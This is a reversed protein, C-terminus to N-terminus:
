SLARRILIVALAAGGIAAIVGLGEMGSGRGGAAVVPQVQLSAPRAALETELKERMSQLTAVQDQLVAREAEEVRRQLEAGLLFAYAADSAQEKAQKRESLRDYIHTARRAARMVTDEGPIERFTRAAEVYDVIDFAPYRMGGGGGRDIKIMPKPPQPQVGDQLLMMISALM